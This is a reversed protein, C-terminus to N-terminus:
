WELEEWELDNVNDIDDPMKDAIKYEMDKDLTDDPVEIEGVITATYRIRRM